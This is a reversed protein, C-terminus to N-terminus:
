IRGRYIRMVYCRVLKSSVSYENWRLMIAVAHRREDKATKRGCILTLRLNRLGVRTIM